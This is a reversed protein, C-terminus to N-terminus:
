CMWTCRMSCRSRDGCRRTDIHEWTCGIDAVFAGADAILGASEPLAPSAWNRRPM